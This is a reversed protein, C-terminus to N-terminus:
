LPAEFDLIKHSFSDVDIQYMPHNEFKKIISAKYEPFYAHAEASTTFLRRPVTTQRDSFGAYMFKVELGFLPKM